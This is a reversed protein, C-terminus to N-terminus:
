GPGISVAIGDLDEWHWGEARVLSQVMGPLKRAHERPLFEERCRELDRDRILAVSCWETATELALLKM